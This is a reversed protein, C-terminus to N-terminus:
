AKILSPDCETSYVDTMVRKLTAASCGTHPRCSQAGTEVTCYTQSGSLLNITAIFSYIYYGFLRQYRTNLASQVATGHTRGFGCPNM